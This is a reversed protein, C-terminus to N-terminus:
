SRWAEAVRLGSYMIFVIMKAANGYLDTGKGNKRFAEHYLKDMDDNSTFEIKREKVAVVAESPLKIKQYNLSPLKDYNVCEEDSLCMKIVMWTKQISARSYKSALAKLYDKFMESNLAALQRNALPYLDFKLFRQGLAEEYTDFTTSQLSIGVEHYKKNYLWDKVYEGFTTMNGCVIKKPKRSLKEKVEAQTKGYTYHSESDRYCVYYIGNITKKGWSGEGNVRKKSM